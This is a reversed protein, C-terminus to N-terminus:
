VVSKRDTEDSQRWEVHHGWERRLAFHLPQATETRTWVGRQGEYMQSLIDCNKLHYRDSTVKSHVLVSKFDPVLIQQFFASPM